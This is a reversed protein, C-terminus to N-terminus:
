HADSTTREKDSPKRHKGLNTEDQDSAFLYAVFPILYAHFLFLYSGKETRDLHFPILYVHFHFLYSGTQILYPINPTRPFPKTQRQVRLSM